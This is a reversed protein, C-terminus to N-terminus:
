GSEAKLSQLEKYLSSKKYLANNKPHLPMIHETCLKEMRAPGKERVWEKLMKKEEKTYYLEGKYFKAQVRLRCLQKDHLVIDKSLTPQSHQVIGMHQDCLLIILDNKRDEISISDEKKYQTLTSYFYGVDGGHDLFMLKNKKTQPDHIVLYYQQPLQVQNFPMTELKGAADYHYLFNTSAILEPDFIDSYEKFKEDGILALSLRKILFRAGKISRNSDDYKSILTRLNEKESDYKWRQKLSKLTSPNYENIKMQELEQDVEPEQETEVETEAEQKQAVHHSPLQDPLLDQHKISEMKSRLNDIFKTKDVNIKIFFKDSLEEIKKLANIRLGEIVDKTPDLTEKQGFAAFPHDEQSTLFINTLKFENLLALFENQNSESDLKLKLIQDMISQIVVHQIKQKIAAVLHTQQQQTQNILVFRLIHFFTIPIHPPIQQSARIAKEGELSIVFSIKQNKDLGRMRWVGQMLDRLTLDKGISVYAESLPAQTIDTGTTHPQDYYTFRKNPEKILRSDALPIAHTNGRELIMQVNHENYYVVGEIQDIKGEQYPLRDLIKKAVLANSAGSFLSSTDILARMGNTVAKATILGDLIKDHDTTTLIQIDKDSKEALITITKGDVGKAKLAETAPKIASTSKVPADWSVPDPWTMTNWPTGTFGQVKAFMDFLSYPSSNLTKTYIKVKPFIYRKLYIFLTSPKQNISKCLSEIDSDSASIFKGGHEKGFLEVFEKYATTDSYKLDSDDRIEEKAQARLDKFLEKIRVPTIGTKLYMQATYNLLEYANGFQSTEVPKNNGSYPIAVRISPNGSPGFNVFCKKNLTLPLVKNIEDKLVALSDRLEESLLGKVFEEGSSDTEMLYSNIKKESDSTLNKFFQYLPNEPHGQLYKKYEEIFIPRFSKKYIDEQYPLGGSQKSFIEFTMLKPLAESSLLCEFLSSVVEYRSAKLPVPDGLTFIVKHLCNFILDAEDVIATGKTNILNLIKQMLAIKALLQPDKSKGGSAQDLAERFKLGLSELDKSKMILCKRQLRVTNLHRLISELKEVTFQTERDFPLTQIPQQYVDRGSIQMDSSTTEYLHEPVVIMSIHDGDANMLALIPLFVKSKGSGMIMQLIMNIRDQTSTMKSLNEVQDKRLMMGTFYEFILYELHEQPKYARQITLQQALTNSLEKFVLDENIKYAHGTPKALHEEMVQITELNLKRSNYDTARVLYEKMLNQLKEIDSVTLEPNREIIMSFSNKLFIAVLDQLTLPVKETGLIAARHLIDDDKKNALLLIQEELHNKAKFLESKQILLDRKLNGVDQQIALKLSDFDASTANMDKEFAEMNAIKGWQYQATSPQDHYDSIDQQLTQSQSAFMPTAGKASLSNILNEHLKKRERQQQLPPSKLMFLKQFSSKSLAPTLAYPDATLGVRSKEAARKMHDESAEVSKMEKEELERKPEKGAITEMSQQKIFDRVKKQYPADAELTFQILNTQNPRDIITNKKPFEEPYAFVVKLFDPLYGGKLSAAGLKLSLEYDKRDPDKSVAKAYYASANFTGPRTVLVDQRISEGKFGMPKKPSFKKQDFYRHSDQSDRHITGFEMQLSIESVSPPEWSMSHSTSLPKGTELFELRKIISRDVALFVCTEFIHKIITIEEEPKLALTKSHEILSLYNLYESYYSLKTTGEFLDLNKMFQAAATLYVASSKPDGDSNNVHLTKIWSFLEAESETFAKLKEVRTRLYHQAMEYDKKGLHLYALFLNQEHNQTYVDGKESVDYVFCKFSKEDGEADKPDLSVETSLTGKKQVLIPKRQILVKKEGKENELLLFNKFDGLGKVRQHQAIFFGPYQSCYACPKKDREKFTFDLGLRPMELLKPNGEKDKWLHQYPLAEFNGLDQYPSFPHYINTLTLPPKDQELREITIDSQSGSFFMVSLEAQDFPHKSADFLTKKMLVRHTVQHTTLDCLLMEGQGNTFDSIWHSKTDKLLKSGLGNELKEKRVHTYWLGNRKQQIILPEGNNNKPDTVIIRTSIGDKDKFQYHGPSPCFVNFDDNKFLSKFTQDTLINLPLTGLKKNKLYLSLDNLNFIVEGGNGICFPPKSIDWKIEHKQRDKGLATDLINELLSSREMPNQILENVQRQYRMRLKYIEYNLHFDKFKDSPPHAQLYVLTPILIGMEEKTLPPTKDVFDHAIQRYVLAKEIRTTCQSLLHNMNQQSCILSLQSSMESLHKKGQEYFAALEKAHGESVPSELTPIVCEVEQKVLQAFHIFFAAGEINKHQLFYEYGKQIFLNLEQAYDPNEMLVRGLYDHMFMIRKFFAQYKREGLKDLHNNFYAIAKTVQLQQPFFKYDDNGLVLLSLLERHEDPSLPVDNKDEELRPLKALDNYNRTINFLQSIYGKQEDPHEWWSSEGNTTTRPYPNENMQYMDGNVSLGFELPRNYILWKEISEDNRSKVALDLCMGPKVIGRLFYNALLAQKKIHCFAPPLFRGELDTRAFAIFAELPMNKNQPFKPFVKFFKARNEKSELYQKIYLSEADLQNKSSLETDLKLSTKQYDQPGMYYSDFLPEGSYRTDKFYNIIAGVETRRNGNYITGDGASGGQRERWYCQSFKKYQLGQKILEALEHDDGLMALRHQIALGKFINITHDSHELPIAQADYHSVAKMLLESINAIHLMCAEIKVKDKQLGGWFDNASPVPLKSLMETIAFATERYQAQKIASQCQEYFTKLQEDIRKVDPQWSTNVPIVASELGIKPAVSIQTQTPPVDLRGFNQQKEATFNVEPASLYQDHEYLLKAHNVYALIEAILANAQKQEELTIVKNKFNKKCALAFQEASKKILRRAQDDDKLKGSVQYEKYIDILSQKQIEHELRDYNNQSLRSRALAMLAAWSCIGTHQPIIFEHLNRTRDVIRGGLAPILGLYIDKASYNTFSQILPLVSYVKYEIFAQILQKNLLNEAPVDVIELFCHYKTQDENELKPHYQIGEGTNFVRFRYRGEGSNTIEYYMAHGPGSTSGAWGGPLIVSENVALDQITATISKILKLTNNESLIKSNYYNELSREVQEGIAIGKKLPNFLGQLETRAEVPLSPLTMIKENLFDVMYKMPELNQGELGTDKIFLDGHIHAFLAHEMHDKWKQVEVKPPPLVGERLRISERMSEEATQLPPKIPVTKIGRQRWSSILNRAYSIGANVRKTFSSQSLNTTPKEQYEKHFLHAFERKLFTYYRDLEKPKQLVVRQKRSDFIGDANVTVDALRKTPDVEALMFCELAIYYALETAKKTYEQNYAKLDNKNYGKLSKDLSIHITITQNNDKRAAVFTVSNERKTQFQSPKVSLSKFITEGNISTM